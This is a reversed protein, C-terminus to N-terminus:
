FVLILDTMLLGQNSRTGADYPKLYTVGNAGTVNGNPGAYWDFRANPRIIVNPFPSWRPGFTMQYFSGAFGGAFAGTANSSGWGQTNSVGGNTTNPYDPLFGGVRFGEEDRFWEFNFGWSWQNNHKYYIYQNLGYWRSHGSNTAASGAANQSIQSATM